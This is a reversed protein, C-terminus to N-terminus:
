ESEGRAPTASLAFPIVDGSGARKLLVGCITFTWGSNMIDDILLVTGPPCPTTITFADIINGAQQFSNRMYKQEKTDKVKAILSYYPLNLQQAVRKAFDPVLNPNRLSPVATVWVPPNQMHWNNKIFDVAYNVLKDEFNGKVYRNEKVINGLGAAGYLCLARGELTREATPIRGREGGVGNAPWVERPTIIMPQNYLFDNALRLLDENVQDSYIKRQQCNECKGCDNLFSDNLEHSIFKMLCENTMAYDTVKLLENMKIQKTLEGKLLKNQVPNLSRYYKSGNKFILEDIELLTICQKVQSNSYNVSALINNVTLGSSNSIINLIDELIRQEPLGSKIFEEHLTNDEEDYILIIEANSISRGARGIQQYYSVLSRPGQYHIVFGLDPKDFGMGLADTAILAKVNNNLLLKELAERDGARSHYPKVNIGNSVLWKAVRECEAITNCYVIGTGTLMPLNQALWALRQSYDPILLRSLRLSERDLRGRLIKMDKGIQERIDSVVRDNATATTALIPVNLHSLSKVIRIIRRYDPRFDHGWDSICHAEDVVFCGIGGNNDIIPLTNERFFKNSLREPSIILIDIRNNFLEQNIEVWDQENNSNITVANIGIGKASEIQNRMLSLLPSILISPGAGQSRLLKTAIFYVMSKGWGTKQVVLTKERQIVSNIAEWQGEKFSAHNGVMTRLLNLATTQM